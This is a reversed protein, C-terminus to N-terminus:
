FDIKKYKNEKRMIRQKSTQAAHRSDSRSIIERHVKRYAGRLGAADYKKLLITLEYISLNELDIDNIDPVGYEESDVEDPFILNLEDSDDTMGVPEIEEYDMIQGNQPNVYPVIRGLVDEVMIVEGRYVTEPDDLVRDFSSRRLTPFLLKVDSHTLEKRFIVPNSIGVISSLFFTISVKNGCIKHLRKKDQKKKDGSM